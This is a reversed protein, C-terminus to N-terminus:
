LGGGEPPEPQRWRPVVRAVTLAVVEAAGANKLARACAELTAGTTMVDDVLLVRLKDVRIGERTAYAGRVSKWREARTLLLQAPRPLKRVLLYSGLGVGLRRAVPRAILEAQNYGRERRRDAHLPVPVVVDAAFAEKERLAVEALKAGFFEGLRTVEEYKLLQIASVAVDAYEAYSRARRFSFFDGRCVRCLRGAAPEAGATEGGGAKLGPASPRGCAECVPGEIVRISALCKECIPIRSLKVLPEQCVRCPAAFIVASLADIADRLIVTEM